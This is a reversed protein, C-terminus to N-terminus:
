DIRLVRIPDISVARRAPVGVAVLAFIALVAVSGSLMMPDYSGVGFLQTRLFHGIILSLPIGLVLGIGTLVLAGRLVVGLVNSRGAGLAVRIGIEKTRRQVTYSTIGYLGISALALATIGFLSALRFMLIEQSFNLNVQDEFKLFRLVPLNPDIKALTGRIESELSQTGPELRLVIDYIYRSRKEFAAIAPDDYNTIQFVPLFLMPPAPDRPNRYKADQVVGVIEYDGAYKPDIRGFHKGIPDDNGFFRLAFTKNVVAVHKSLETDQETIPRGSLMRTGVADFYGPSVRNYWAANEDSNPPPPAQGQIVVNTTWLSGSMPSYLSYSVDLVGSLESLRQKLSRYLPELQDSKYGAQNPDIRAVVRGGTDFGMKQHVLNRLSQAMLGAGAILSLSLAAQAVVLTKRLVSGADTSGRAGGRLVEMAEARSTLWAPGIGFLLGSALSVTLAFLLVPISPSTDIPVYSALPFVLRLLMRTGALALGLGAIGGIVALLLSETLAQAILRSRQAGLAVSIATQRKRELGRVLALNALNACVILLVFASLIMLLRLGSEYTARMSEIGAGGPTLHVSQLPIQARQDATLAASRSELWQQLQVNLGAEVISNKAGPQVRGIIYLWHLDPNKLLPAVPNTLPEFSLPLWFDPPNSRLTEGFFAPPTIGVITVPIANINFASGIVSPDLGYKQQWTHYSMVAALPSDPRDDASSLTRGAFAEVGFMRFYNGSVMQGYVSQAPETGSARRVAIRRIDSQFAALEEFGTSNDRFYKYLDYSFLCYSTELGTYVGGFRMNDGVRHLRDPSAVPLSKLLVSHILSFIATTGGIGLAMTLIATLAFGPSKRMQRLAHRLDQKLRDFPMRHNRKYCPNEYKM